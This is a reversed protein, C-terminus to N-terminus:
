LQVVRNKIAWLILAVNNRSNTKRMLRAKNSEITKVSVFLKDALEQNTLGQCIYQLLEKEKDTIQEELTNSNANKYNMNKIVNQLLEQSFYSNGNFVERIGEELEHISSQKLIFGKAGASLLDHYYQSENYLSLAIVKLDPKFALVKRTATIGDMVPMDIDTVIVDVELHKINDVLEKGNSYEAVIEFDDIQSVLVRIGERILDLDEVLVIRIM